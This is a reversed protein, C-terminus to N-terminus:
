NFTNLRCTRLPPRNDQSVTIPGRTWSKYSEDVETCTTNIRCFRCYKQKELPGTLNHVHPNFIYKGHIPHCSKYKCRKYYTLQGGPTLFVNEIHPM